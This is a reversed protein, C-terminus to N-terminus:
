CKDCRQGAPNQCQLLQSCHEVLNGEWQLVGGSFKDNVWLAVVQDDNLCVVVSVGLGGLRLPLLLHSLYNPHLVPVCM